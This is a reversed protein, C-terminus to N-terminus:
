PYRKTIRTFGEKVTRITKEYESKVVELILSDNSTIYVDVELGFQEKINYKIGNGGLKAYKKEICTNGHAELMTGVYSPFEVINFEEKDPVKKKGNMEKKVTSIRKEAFQQRYENALCGCSKTVGGRLSKGSIDKIRGCRTCECTWMPHKTEQNDAFKLVKLCGYKRGTLDEKFSHGM